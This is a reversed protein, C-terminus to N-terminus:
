SDETYTKAAANLYTARVDARTPRDEDGHLLYGPAYTYGNRVVEGRRNLTWTRKTECRVCELRSVFMAGVIEVTKPQWAHGYTRCMMHSLKM